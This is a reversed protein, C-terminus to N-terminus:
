RNRFYAAAMEELRPVAYSFFTQFSRCYYNSGNEMWDRKCGGRCLPMYRCSRCEQPRNRGEQLFQRSKASSLADEISISCINGLYWHDLVYFDCPYLSGDGEVVLYSGCAGSAACSSPPMRLLIRLYDDFTRISIYNGAKWDRYWCDFLSCLFKGYADPKLSYFESGRSAEIPDLCPIFQLPLRGLQTLSRYVQPAKKAIQGTVVCLINTEVHFQKLLKLADTTKEWTGEGSADIRFSNHISQTGDISIGVLFNHEGFFKAWAETLNFGNTQIAHYCHVGTKNYTHELAIFNRFYELGALTPEGGQFLFTITGGPSVAQFAKRLIQEVTDETMIGMHKQTRNAAVDEYFCYRCRMNCLSSAPKILFTLSHM